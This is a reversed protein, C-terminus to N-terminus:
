SKERPIVFSAIVLAQATMLDVCGRKGSWVKRQPLLLVLINESFLSDAKSM